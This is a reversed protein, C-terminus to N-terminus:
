SLDAVIREFVAVHLPTEFRCGTAAGDSWTVSAALPALGPLSLWVRDGMHLHAVFETRFGSTSLDRLRAPIPKDGSLRLKVDVSLAVRRDERGESGSSSSPGDM